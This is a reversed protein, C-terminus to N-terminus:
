RKHYVAKLNLKCGQIWASFMRHQALVAEEAPAAGPPGAAKWGGAAKGDGACQFSASKPLAQWINIAAYYSALSSLCRPNLM